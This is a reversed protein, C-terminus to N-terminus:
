QSSLYSLMLNPTLDFPMINGRPEWLLECDEVIHSVTYHERCDPCDTCDRAM